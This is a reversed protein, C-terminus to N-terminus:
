APMVECVVVWLTLKDAMWGLYEEKVAPPNLAHPAAPPLPRVSLGTSLLEVWGGVLRSPNMGSSVSVPPGWCSRPLLLPDKVKALERLAVLLSRSGVLCSADGGWVLLASSAPPEEDRLLTSVTKHGTKKFWCRLRLQSPLDLTHKCNWPKRTWSSDPKFCSQQNELCFLEFIGKTTIVKGIKHHHTHDIEYIASRSCGSSQTETSPWAIHHWAEWPPFRISKKAKKEFFYCFFWQPRSFM